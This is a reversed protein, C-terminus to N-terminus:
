HDPWWRSRCEKGVRREESRTVIPTKEVENLLFLSMKIWVFVALSSTAPISVKFLVNSNFFAVGVLTLFFFLFIVESTPPSNVGVQGGKVTM